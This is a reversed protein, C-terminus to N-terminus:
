RTDANRHASNDIGECENKLFLYNKDDIWIRNKSLPDGIGIHLSSSGYFGLAGIFSSRELQCLFRFANLQDIKTPFFVDIATGFPHRHPDGGVNKNYPEPRWWNYILSVKIGESEMEDLWRIVQFAYFWTKPSPIFIWPISAPYTCQFISRSNPNPRMVQQCYDPRQTNELCAKLFVDKRNVGTFVTQIQDSTARQYNQCLPRPNKEFQFSQFHTKAISSKNEQLNIHEVLDAIWDGDTKTLNEPNLNVALPDPDSFTHSFNSSSFAVPSGFFFLTLAILFKSFDTFRFYHCLM